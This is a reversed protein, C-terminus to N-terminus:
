ELILGSSEELNIIAERYDMLSKILNKKTNITTFQAQLFELYSIEGSQYSLNATKYIEESQPILEHLYLQVQNLNNLFNTFANNIKLKVTNVANLYEYNLIEQNASAEQIKGRQDFMFWIPLSIGFKIGYYNNTGNSSQLMYSANLSPLYSMLAINKSLESSEKQFFLKLLFPNSTISRDIIDTVNLSLDTFILSDTFTLNELDLIRTDGLSYNLENLSTTYDKNATAIFSKAETLQAKATLFELNTGEGSKYRIEAKKLFEEAIKFNDEAVDLLLKKSQAYYYSKKILARIGNREDEYNSIAFNIESSARASKTFYLTPFDFNQSIEITREGYNSIATGNPIFDNSVTINIPPLSIERLYKGKYSNIIYKAKQLEPHSQFGIELADKLSLNVIVTKEQGFCTSQLLIALFLIFIFKNM